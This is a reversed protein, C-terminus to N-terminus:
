PRCTISARSAYCSTTRSPGIAAGERSFKGRHVSTFALRLSNFQRWVVATRSEVTVDVMQGKRASFWAPAEAGYKRRGAEEAPSKSHSCHSCDGGRIDPHRPLWRQQQGTGCGVRVSM